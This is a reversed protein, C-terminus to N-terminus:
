IIGGWKRSGLAVKLHLLQEDSFSEAVNNPMRSLLKRVAPENKIQPNNQQM